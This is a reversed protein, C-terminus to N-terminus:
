CLKIRLTKFNEYGIDFIPKLFLILFVLVDGNTFPLSNRFAGTPTPSQASYSFLSFRASSPLSPTYIKVHDSQGFIQYKNMFLLDFLCLNQFLNYRMDDDKM